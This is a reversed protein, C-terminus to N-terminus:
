EADFPPSTASVCASAMLRPGSTRTFQTMRSPDFRGIVARKAALVMRLMGRAADALRLVDGLDDGKQEIDFARAKDGTGIEDDVPSHGALHDIVLLCPTSAEGSVGGEGRQFFRPS